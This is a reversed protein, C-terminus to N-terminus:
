DTRWASLQNGGCGMSFVVQLLNEKEEEDERKKSFYSNDITVHAQCFVGMNDSIQTPNDTYDYPRIGQGLVFM